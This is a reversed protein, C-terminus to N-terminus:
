AARRRRGAVILAVGGFLFVGGSVLSATIVGHLIPLTIAGTGDASVGASGDANMLVVTWDGPEVSVWAVVDDAEAAWARLLV